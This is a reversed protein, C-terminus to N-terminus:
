IAAPAQGAPTGRIGASGPQIGGAPFAHITDCEPQPHRACASGSLRLTGHYSQPERPGWTVGAFAVGQVPRITQPPRGPQHLLMM